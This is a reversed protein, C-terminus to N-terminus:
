SVIVNKMISVASLIRTQSGRRKYSDLADAIDVRLEKVAKNQFSILNVKM